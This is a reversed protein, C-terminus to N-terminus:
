SPSAPRAHALAAFLREYGGPRHLEVWQWRKLRDPVECTEFKAPIVFIKEEPQEDALDLVMRIERQVYGTKDISAQSLCVIVLDAARVAKRIEADWDQGAVIDEEDLWPDFGEDRLRRYLRRVRRKDGSSHCLFIRYHRGAASTGPGYAPLPAAHDSWTRDYVNLIHVNGIRLTDDDGEQASPRLDTSPQSVEGRGLRAAGPGGVVDTLEDRYRELRAVVEPPLVAAFRGRFIGDGRRAFEQQIEALRPRDGPNNLLCSEVLRRLESEQLGDLNPRANMADASGTAALPGHGTAAFVLTAGLAFIDAPAGAVRLGEQAVEPPTYGYDSRPRLSWERYAIDGLHVLNYDIVWPGGLALLVKEPKLNRHVLGCAHIAALAEVIGAGLCWVAEEPLPGYWAVAEELPPGYILETAMWVPAGDPQADILRPVFGSRVRRIAQIERQFRASFDAIDSFKPPAVKVAALEEVRDRRRAAYVTGSSGSGLRALFRYPGVGSLDSSRLAEIMALCV